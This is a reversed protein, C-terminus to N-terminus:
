SLYAIEPIIYHKRLFENNNGVTPSRITIAIDEIM